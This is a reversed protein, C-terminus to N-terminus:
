VKNWSNYNFPSILIDNIKKKWYDVKKELLIDQETKPYPSTNQMMEEEETTISPKYGFCNVGFKVNPNGIYGGNVGPRGCDHEHGKIEQLKNFTDKQTPFLAMQKDSWGYNCWEGGSTYSEEVEDYTALRANYAKCVSKADDYSYYNGPINFVQQNGSEHNDCKDVPVNPVNPLNNNSNSPAPNENVTVELERKDTFLNKISTMIDISFFYQLVNFLLLIILVFIIIVIITNSTNDLSSKESTSNSSNGLSVFFVIYVIFVFILIIFVLPNTLLGNMYDYMNEPQITSSTNTADM